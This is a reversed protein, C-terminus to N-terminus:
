NMFGPPYRGSIVTIYKRESDRNENMVKPILLAGLSIYLLDIGIDKNFREKM